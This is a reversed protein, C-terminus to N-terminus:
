FFSNWFGYTRMTKEQSNGVKPTKILYQEVVIEMFYYKSLLPSLESNAKFMGVNQFSM